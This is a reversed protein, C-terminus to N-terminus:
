GGTEGLPSEPCEERVVNYTISTVKWGEAMKIFALVDVGCHSFEGDMHFDYPAWVMAIRGNVEVTPEWIRELFSTGGEALGQLFEERTRVAYQPGSEGERISFLRAHDAMLEDLLATDRQSLADVFDHALRTVEAEDTDPSAVASEVERGSGTDTGERRGECALGVAGLLFVLLPGGRLVRGRITGM